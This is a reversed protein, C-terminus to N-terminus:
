NDRARLRRPSRRSSSAKPFLGNDELHECTGSGWALGYSLGYCDQSVNSEIVWPARACLAEDELRVGCSGAIATVWPSRAGLVKDELRVGHSGTMVPVWPPRAGLVEDELRVGCSGTMVTVWHARADLAEDKLRIQRSVLKALCM